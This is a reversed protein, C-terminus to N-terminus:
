VRVTYMESPYKSGEPHQSHFHLRNSLRGIKHNENVSQSFQYNHLSLLSINTCYFNKKIIKVEDMHTIIDTGQEKKDNEGSPM